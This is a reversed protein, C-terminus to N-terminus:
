EESIMWAGNEDKGTTRLNAKLYVIPRINDYKSSEFLKNNYQGATTSYTIGGNIDKLFLIVGM